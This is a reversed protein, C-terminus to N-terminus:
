GAIARSPTLASNSSAAFTSSTAVATIAQAGGVRVQGGLVDLQQAMGLLQRAVDEGRERRVVPADIPGQDRREALVAQQAADEVALNGRQVEAEDALAKGAVAGFGLGRERDLAEARM